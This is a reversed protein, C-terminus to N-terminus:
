RDNYQVRLQYPNRRLRHRNRVVHEILRRRDIDLLECIWSCSGVFHRKDRLLWWRDRSAWRELDPTRYSGVATAIAQTLCYAWLKAEPQTKLLQGFEIPFVLRFDEPSKKELMLVITCSLLEIV